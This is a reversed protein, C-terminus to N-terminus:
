SAARTAMLIKLNKWGTDGSIAVADGTLGSERASRILAHVVAGTQLGCFFGQAALERTRLTAEELTVRVREDFYDRGLSHQIFPTIYDGDVFAGTGPIKTGAAGEVAVMRTSPSRERMFQATGTLTGGSGLSATVLRVDPLERLIEPGMTEYAARPNAWNHLQDLFCYRGPESPAIVDRCYRNGEWTFDGHLVLEADFYSLFEAKDATLKNSCVVKVPYGLIKGYYALATAMNGSSADLLTMGKKLRGQEIADRILYICARDKVCGTPNYGELKVWIRVDPVEPARFRVLPTNGIMATFGAAKM